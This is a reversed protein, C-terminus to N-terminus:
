ALPDGFRTYKVKSKAIHSFEVSRGTFPAHLIFNEVGLYIMIHGPYYALDGAQADEQSVATIHRIQDRSSRPLAM